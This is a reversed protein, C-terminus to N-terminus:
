EERILNIEARRNAARAQESRGAIKPRNEGYAYRIIKISNVGQQRLYDEVSRARRESLSENYSRSGQDDAHGDVRIQRISEDAVVFSALNKLHGQENVGLSDVDLPFHVVSNRYDDFGHSSLNKMCRKFERFPKQFNVPSLRLHINKRNDNWDLFDFSPMQGKALSSLLWASNRRLLRIPILGQNLKVDTILPDPSAHKWSPSVERILGDVSVPVPQFSNIRFKLEEGALREFRCIGFKPIEHKLLCNAQTGQFEWESMHEGALYIDSQVLAAHGTQYAVSLITLCVVWLVYNTM